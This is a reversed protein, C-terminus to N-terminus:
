FWVEGGVFAPFTLGHDKTAYSAYSELHLAFRYPDGQDARRARRRRSGPRRCGATASRSRCRSSGHLSARDGVLRVRVSPMVAYAVLMVDLAVELAIIAFGLSIDPVGTDGAARLNTGFAAGFRIRKPGEVPVTVPALAVGRGIVPARGAATGRRAQNSRSSTARRSRLTKEADKYGALHAVLKHEGPALVAADRPERARAM